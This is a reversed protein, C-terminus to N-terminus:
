RADGQDEEITYLESVDVRLALAIRAMTALSVDEVTEGKEEATWLRQITNYQVLAHRSLWTRSRGQKDAVTKVKPRIRVELKQRRMM